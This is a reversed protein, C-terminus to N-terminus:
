QGYGEFIEELTMDPFWNAQIRKMEKLVFQTRRRIKNNMSKPSIGIAKAASTESLGKEIFLMELKTKAPAIADM